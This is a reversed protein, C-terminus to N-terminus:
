RVQQAAIWGLVEDHNHAIWFHGHGKLRTMEPPRPARTLENALGDVASLPVNRDEDGIWIRTPAHTLALDVNWPRGFLTVDIAPGAAGQALGVAFTRGLSDAFAADCAMAKDARLARGAAIRTALQPRRAAVHGLAGFAARVVGPWHPLVRFSLRHVLGLEPAPSVGAIPGVPAVLASATIRDGLVAAVAAAYPGGGSIGTVAFRGIGLADALAAVDAAFAAFSPQRPVDSGGYGWRNLAILRLNHTAAAEAAGAFKLHSGPTGHLAIVTAGGASGYNAFCLRRGDPLRVASALEFDGSDREAM